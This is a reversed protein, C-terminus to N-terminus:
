AFDYKKSGVQKYLQYFPVIFNQTNAYKYVVIHILNKIKFCTENICTYYISYSYHQVYLFHPILGFNCIFKKFDRVGIKENNKNEQKQLVVFRDQTKRM